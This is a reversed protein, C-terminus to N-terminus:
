PQGVDLIGASPLLLHFTTGQGPTSTVQLSGGNKQAFEACLILGLGTGPERNTGPTSLKNELHFLLPIRHAPIGVGTDSVAIKVEGGQELASVTVRGGSKTFKMANSLLNRLITVVTDRDALVQFYELELGVTIGKRHFAEELPELAEEVLFRVLQCQPSLVLAGTQSRGWDLLTELLRYVNQATQDMSRLLELLDERSVGDFDSLIEQILSQLAAFPNKLDHALISFFRDRSENAMTLEAAVSELVRNKDRLSLHNRLRLLLEAKHFPKSVFDVGGSEFGKVVEEEDTLSTLFILPVSATKPDAKLKRAIGYGDLGPLLVDLLILDYENAALLRFAEEAGSAGTFAFETPSLIARLTLLNSPVDDIALIRHPVGPPM